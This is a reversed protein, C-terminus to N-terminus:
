LLKMYEILALKDEDPLETGYYHGRDTVYDPCKSIAILDPVSEALLAAAQDDNLNDKKIKILSNKLKHLAKVIKVIQKPDTTTGDISTLLAIPTGKPIPGIVLDGNEDTLEKLFKPLFEKHLKLYSKETTRYISDVGRRTEPWLLQKAASDFGAMRGAVSPDLALTYDGISNNLFFPASAWLSVLTPTRTYGPGGSPTQFMFKEYTIPNIVEIEGVSPLQKYTESSFHAWVHGETSNTALASCANTKLETIPYRKEDSLYNNDLFDPKQVETRFWAKYEDSGRALEAPPQKSSHCTACNDAFVEKGKTLIAEDKTVFEEGGPSQLLPMPVAAKLFFAALNGVRQESAQWYVSNKKAQEVPFPTQPKGGLLANHNRLWQQHYEGINIYVRALAGLIGVSDSGDKLIHPVVMSETQGAFLVNDKGINEMEGAGLRAAVNYISNMTRPNAINDTAIFSTDLAGVPNTINFVQWIFNDPKLDFGFIRGAWFYQAGINSSLSKWEFNSHDAPPHQPHFSVHCFACTMGVKYPRVLKPNYYYDRDEYYRKPDWNKQAEADFDPNPYLRLGVVGTSLGYVEPDIKIDAPADPDTPQPGNPQDLWIGWQDPGSAKQYSPDNIIGFYEFREDRKRSDIIKLFDVTGFSHSAMHDWFDQNGGTWLLWTNRGKREDDTLEVGNDMADFWRSATEPFDAPTKGALYATDYVPKNKNYWIFGGIGGAAVLVVLAGWIIKRNM